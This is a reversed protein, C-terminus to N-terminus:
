KVVSIIYQADVVEPTASWLVDVVQAIMGPEGELLLVDTLREREGWDVFGVMECGSGWWLIECFGGGM